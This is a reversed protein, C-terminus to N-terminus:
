SENFPEAARHQINLIAVVFIVWQAPTVHIRQAVVVLIQLTIGVIAFIAVTWRRSSNLASQAPGLLRTVRVDAQSM